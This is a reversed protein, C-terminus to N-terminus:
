RQEGSFKKEFAAAQRQVGRGAGKRIPVRQMQGEGVEHKDREDNM